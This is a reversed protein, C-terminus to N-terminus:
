RPERGRQVQLLGVHLRRGDPVARRYLELEVVLGGLHPLRVRTRRPLPRGPLVRRVLLSPHAAGHWRLLRERLPREIRRHVRQRRPMELRARGHEWARESAGAHVGAAGHAPPGPTRCPGPVETKGGTAQMGNGGLHRPCPPGREGPPAERRQAENARSDFRGGGHLSEVGRAGFFLRGGRRPDRPGTAHRCPTTPANGGPRDRRSLTASSRGRRPTM